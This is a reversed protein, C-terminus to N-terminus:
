AAEGQLQHSGLSTQPIESGEEKEPAREPAALVGATTVEGSPVVLRHAAYLEPPPVFHLSGM